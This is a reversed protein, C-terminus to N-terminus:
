WKKGSDEIMNWAVEYNRKGKEAFYQKNTQHIKAFNNEKSIFGTCWLDHMELIWNNPNLVQHRKNKCETRNDSINVFYKKM